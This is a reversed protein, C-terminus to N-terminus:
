SLLTALLNMDETVCIGLLFVLSKNKYGNKLKIYLFIQKYYWM